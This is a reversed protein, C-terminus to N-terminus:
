CPVAPAAAATLALYIGHFAEGQPSGWGEQKEVELAKGEVLRPGSGRPISKTPFFDCCVHLCRELKVDRGPNGGHARGRM